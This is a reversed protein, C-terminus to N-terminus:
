HQTTVNVVPTVEEMTEPGQDIYTQTSDIMIIQIRGRNVLIAAARNWMGPQKERATYESSSFVTLM